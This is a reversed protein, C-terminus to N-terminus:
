CRSHRQLAERTVVPSTVLGHPPVGGCSEHDHWVPQPRRVRFLEEWKSAAKIPGDDVHMVVVEVRVHEVAHRDLLVNIEDVGVPGCLQVTDGGAITRECENTRLDWM